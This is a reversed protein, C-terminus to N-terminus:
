HPACSDQEGLNKGFINKNRPGLCSGTKPECSDQLFIRALNKTWSKKKNKNEFAM